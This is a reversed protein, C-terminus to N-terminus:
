PEELEEAADGGSSTAAVSDNDDGKSTKRPKEQHVPPPHSPPALPDESRGTPQRGVALESSSDEGLNFSLRSTHTELRPLPSALGSQKPGLAM